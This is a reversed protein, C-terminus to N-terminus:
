FLKMMKNIANRKQDDSPHCYTNMTITVDAHGLISSVTKVDVGNEILRTAFTHRIDHFRIHKIGLIKEVKKHQKTFMEPIIPTKEDSVIFTDDDPDTAKYIKKLQKKLRPIMPVQRFGNETKTSQVLLEVDGLTGDDRATKTYVANKEVNICNNGWDIDGWQLGCIEGRRMGTNFAIYIGLNLHGEKRYNINEELYEMMKSQDEKSYIQIKSKQKVNSPLKVTFPIYKFGKEEQGHKAIQKAIMIVDLIPNKKSGKGMMHNVLIDGEKKTFQTCDKLLPYINVRIQNSYAVLTTDKVYMKKDDYWDQILDKFTLEEM